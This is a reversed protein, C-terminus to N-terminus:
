RADDQERTTTSPTATSPTTTSPTATSPTATSPTANGPTANGPTATSPTADGPAASGPCCAELADAIARLSRALRASAVSYYVHRGRREAELIGAERLTTLHRSVVSINVPCCAAIESVTCPRCCEALRALIATRNPDCLAKFLAPSLTSSLGRCCPGNRTDPATM